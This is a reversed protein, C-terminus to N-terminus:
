RPLKPFRRISFDDSSTRPASEPRKMSSMANRRILSSAAKSVTEVVRRTRESANTVDEIGRRSGFVSMEPERLRLVLPKTGDRRFRKSASASSLSGSPAARKRSTRNEPSGTACKPPSSRRSKTDESLVVAGSELCRRQPDDKTANTIRWRIRRTLQDLLLSRDKTIKRNAAAAAPSGTPEFPPFRRARAIAAALTITARARQVIDHAGVKVDEGHQECTEKLADREETEACRPAEVLAGFINREMVLVITSSMVSAQAFGLLHMLADVDVRRLPVSLSAFIDLTSSHSTGGERAAARHELRLAGAHTRSKSGVRRMLPLSVCSRHVCLKSTSAISLITEGMRGSRGGCAFSDGVACARRFVLSFHEIPALDDLRM